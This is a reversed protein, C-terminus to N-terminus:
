MAPLPVTASPSAARTGPYRTAQLPDTAATYEPSVMPAYSTVQLPPAANNEGEIGYGACNRVVNKSITPSTGYCHIGRGTITLGSLVSQSGEQLDFSVSYGEAAAIITAQVTNPDDPNESTLRIAKNNFVVKQSYTGTKVVIVDGDASANVAEPITSFDAPGNDDVTIVKAESSLLPLVCLLLLVRNKM